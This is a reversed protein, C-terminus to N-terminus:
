TFLENKSFFYAIEYKAHEANDSGHAANQRVATGFAARVTGEEAKTPDTAGMLKRWKAIANDAQLVMAIIRGSCMFDCLGDFFYQDKHDDYFEGAEEKTLHLLKMGIIDFGHEEIMNIIKGCNKNAFSDPKIIALTKEM